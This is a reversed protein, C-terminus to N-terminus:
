RDAALYTMANRISRPGHCRITRHGDVVGFQYFAVGELRFSWGIRGPEPSEFLDVSWLGSGSVGGFNQPVGAMSLDVDLDIYDYDGIVYPASRVETFLGSICVTAHTETFEGLEKPAGILLRTGAGAVKIGPRERDLNYFSRFAEIGGVREEPLRLFVLDPGREPETGPRVPGLAALSDRHVRFCHDIGEQVTVGIDEAHSLRDEWVHAATLLYHSSSDRVLIGSGCFALREGRVPGTVGLLAVASQGVDRVVEERLGSDDDSFVAMIEDPTM